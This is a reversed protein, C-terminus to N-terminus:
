HPRVTFYPNLRLCLNCLDYHYGTKHCSYNFSLQDRVTENKLENWWVNMLEKLAPDHHDRILVTTEVLGNHEPYGESRYRELQRKLTEPDGKGMELCKEGEDYICDREYHPFCLLSSSRHYLDVLEHLDKNIVVSGDTWISHDYEGVYEHCLIKAKRAMRTRDLGEPNDLLVIKWHDSKMDPNDTFCIYDLDPDIYVPTSLADYGGTIATYVVGKGTFMKGDTGEHSKMMYRDYQEHSYEVRKMALDRRKYVFDRESEEAFFLTLYTGLMKLTDVCCRSNDDEIASLLEEEYLGIGESFRKSIENNGDSVSLQTKIFGFIDSSPVDKVGLTGSSINSVMADLLDKIVKIREEM